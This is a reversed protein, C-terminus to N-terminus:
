TDREKLIIVYGAVRDVSLDGVSDLISSIKWHSLWFWWVPLARNGRKQRDNSSWCYFVSRVAKMPIIVYGSVCLDSLSRNSCYVSVCPAVPSLWLAGGYRRRRSVCILRSKRTGRYSSSVVLFSFRHSNITM